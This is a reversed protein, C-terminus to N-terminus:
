YNILGYVRADSALMDRAKIVMEIAAMPMNSNTFTGYMAHM